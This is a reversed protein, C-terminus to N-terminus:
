RNEARKSRTRATPKKSSEPTPAGSEDLSGDARLKALDARPAEEGIGYVLNGEKDFYRKDTTVVDKGAM